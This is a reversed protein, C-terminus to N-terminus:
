GHTCPAYHKEGERRGGMYIIITRQGRKTEEFFERAGRGGGFYVNLGRAWAYLNIPLEDRIKKGICGKKSYLLFLTFLFISLLNIKFPKTSNRSYHNYAHMCANHKFRGVVSRDLCCVCVCVLNPPVLIYANGHSKESSTTFCAIKKAVWLCGFQHRRGTAPSRCQM